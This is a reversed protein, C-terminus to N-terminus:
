RATIRLRLLGDLTAVEGDDDIRFEKRLARLILTREREIVANYAICLAEQTGDTFHKLYTEWLPLSLAQQTKKDLPGYREFADKLQQALGLPTRRFLSEDLRRQVLEWDSVSIVASWANPSLITEGDKFNVSPKCRVKAFGAYVPNRLIKHVEGYYWHDTGRLPPRVHEADLTRAIAKRNMGSLFLAYIRQVVAVEDPNGPALKIRYNGIAKHEGAKLEQVVTGDPRVMLRKMGYPASGGPYFGNRVVRAKAYQVTRSKDKSYEAAGVRKITKLIADYPSGDNRFPENVYRVIVGHLLCFFEWYASEDVNGFRGWRTVDLVLIGDFDAHQVDRILRQFDRRQANTGTADDRYVRVIQDDHSRADRRLEEDQSEHSDHQLENDTSRREYLVVRM